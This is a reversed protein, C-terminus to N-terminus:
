QRTRKIGEVKKKAERLKGSVQVAELRVERDESVLLPAIHDQTLTSLQEHSLDKMVSVAIEPRDFVLDDMYVILEAGTADLALLGKHTHTTAYCKLKERIAPDKRAEKVEYLYSYGERGKMKIVAEWVKPTANPHNLLHLLRRSGRGHALTGKVLNLLFEEDLDLAALFSNFVLYFHGNRSQEEAFEKLMDLEMSGPKYAFGQEHAYKLPKLATTDKDSLLYRHMDKFFKKKASGVFGPNQFLAKVGKAEYRRLAGTVFTVPFVSAHKLILWELREKDVGEARFLDLIHESRNAKEVLRLLHKEDKVELKQRLAM